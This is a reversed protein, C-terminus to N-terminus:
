APTLFEEYSPPNEGAIKAHLEKRRQDAINKSKIMFPVIGDGFAKLEFKNNKILDNIEEFQAILQPESWFCKKLNYLPDNMGVSLELYKPHKIIAGDHDKVEEVADLNPKDPVCLDYGYLRMKGFGLHNLLFLGRTATASGGNIIAHPQKNILSEEGANVSAHYGIVRCGRALLELVVNPNVQSAVFWIVEPDADQIFNAVHPRPDLLICAWPKIGARKLPSLAHKVAVVKRGAWVEERLDEAVLMPGASAVVIEEDNPKCPRVWEKILQQNKEIHARIQEHPIANRTQIIVKQGGIQQAQPQKAMALKAKAEPGKYHTSWAGMPSQPWIDMGPKDATLNTKPFNKLHYDWIWSDHWQEHRFVGYDGMYESVVGQILLDGGAELDFALWGCESHDWDKRGLYSVADGEKPLCKSLDEHTLQRTTIVDADMWVLYRSVPENNAKAAVFSDYARKITFVKHCFRVAQKRYNQSDDKDKNRAVFAAHDKNWGVAIGAGDRRLVSQVQDFLLNDDLQVLIEVDAPWYKAFSQLAQKAYIDWCNNPFTTVVTINSM